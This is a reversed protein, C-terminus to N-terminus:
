QGGARELEAGVASMEIRASPPGTDVYNMGLRMGDKTFSVNGYDGELSAALPKWGADLFQKQMAELTSKATGPTVTFKMQSGRHEVDAAGAPLVVAVKPVIEKTAKAVELAIGTSTITMEAPGAVTDSFNITVTQGERRFGHVGVGGQRTDSILWGTEGYLKDLSQLVSASSGASVTLKIENKTQSIVSADAPLPVVLVTKEHDAKMKQKFKEGQAKDRRDDEAMAAASQHLLAVRTQNKDPIRQLELTLMEKAPNRFIVVGKHELKLIDDMTAVWGTSGLTERYFKSVAEETSPTDFDLRSDSYRLDEADPMAAIDASLLETSYNIMTKQGPPASVNTRLVVGNQKFYAAEVSGGCAQWGAATLLKRCEDATAAVPAETTYTANLPGVYLPKTGPPLPLKALDVNGGNQLIVDVTGPETQSVMVSVHFGARTFATSAYADTVAGGPMQKWGLAELNKKQFEFCPGVGDMVRYALRAVSRGTSEPVGPMLPFTSLDLIKAAEAPTAPRGLPTEEAPTAPQGLPAAEALTAPQGSPVEKPTTAHEASPVEKAGGATAGEPGPKTERDCGAACALLSVCLLTRMLTIFTAPM